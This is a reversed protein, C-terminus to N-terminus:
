GNFTQYEKWFILQDDSGKLDLSSERCRDEDDALVDDSYCPQFFSSSISDEADEDLTSDSDVDDNESQIFLKSSIKEAGSSQFETSISLIRENEFM